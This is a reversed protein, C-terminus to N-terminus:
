SKCIKDFPNHSVPATLAAVLSPAGAICFCWSIHCGRGNCVCSDFTGYPCPSLLPLSFCSWQLGLLIRAVCATSAWSWCVCSHLYGHPRLWCPFCCRLPSPSCPWPCPSWSPRFRLLSNAAFPGVDMSFPRHLFQRLMCALVLVLQLLRGHYPRHFTGDDLLLAIRLSPFCHICYPVFCHMAICLLCLRSHLM